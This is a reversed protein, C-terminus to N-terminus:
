KTQVIVEQESGTEKYKLLKGFHPKFTLSHLHKEEEWNPTNVFFSYSLTSTYLNWENTEMKLICEPGIDRITVMTGDQLVIKNFEVIIFIIKDVSFRYDVAKFKMTDITYDQPTDSYIRVIKGNSDFSLSIFDNNITDGNIILNHKITNHLNSISNLYSGSITVPTFNKLNIDGSMTHITKPHLTWAVDENLYFIFLIDNIYKVTKFHRTAFFSFVCVALIAFVIRGQVTKKDM